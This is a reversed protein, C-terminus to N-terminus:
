DMTSRALPTPEYASVLQSSCVGARQRTPLLPRGDSHRLFRWTPAVWSVLVATLTVLRVGHRRAVALLHADSVQRQGVLRLVDEDTMSVDDVLFRHSGAARLM